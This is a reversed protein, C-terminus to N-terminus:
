GSCKNIITKKDFIIIIYIYIIYIYIYIYIYIHMGTCGHSTEQM